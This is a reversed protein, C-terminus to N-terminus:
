WLRESMLFDELVLEIPRDTTVAMWQIGLGDCHRRLAQEHENFREQYGARAVEPDIFMRRGTELDTWQADDMDSLDREAPDLVRLVALRHGHAVLHATERRWEDDSDLLDSVLVILSRKHLIDLATKLPQVLGTGRSGPPLDLARFLEQEQGQRSSAPIMSEVEEAFTFLGVADGQGLLFFALTGALTRAYDSKLARGGAAFHMSASGDVVLHCRLNTEDEYKKLYVRDRRALAKWDIHRPDDGPVYPRYESFEVSFGHRVSRHLGRWFGDMLARVRLEMSSIRMLAAPDWLPRAPGPSSSAPADAM